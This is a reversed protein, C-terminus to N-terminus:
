RRGRRRSLCPLVSGGLNKVSVEPWPIPGRRWLSSVGRAVGALRMRIAAGNSRSTCRLLLLTLDDDFRYGGMAVSSLLAPILQSPDDRTCRPTLRNAVEILGSMKLEGGTADRAETLCDTYALLLDGPELVVERGLYGSEELVGLPLNHIGVEDRPQDVASWSAARQRYVMPPPHGANCLTLEGTPTFFTMILATAFRQDSSASCTFSVNMQTAMRRPEIHNIFQRMLTRLQDASASAEDGHGAVDALVLRIIRGTGCSSVYHVDGGASANRYPRSVVYGELGPLSLSTEVARNGGWVESCAIAAQEM